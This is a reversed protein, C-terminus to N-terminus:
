RKSRATIKTTKRHEWLKYLWFSLLAFLIGLIAGAIIDTPYHVFLFVRSFAILFALILACIGIRKHCLFIATAAAFSSGSHGSPFSFSDPRTILLPVDPFQNCPRVRCIVNKLFVEGFLFCMVMAGICILGCKRTKPNILFIISLVIWIFGSEGLYTLIPFISDTFATHFHEQIFNMVTYDFEPITPLPTM